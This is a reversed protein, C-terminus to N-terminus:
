VISRRAVASRAASIGFKAWVASYIALDFFPNKGAYFKRYFRAMGRHFSFNHRLGRHGRRVTTGGKVHIVTTRGDYWVKWGAQKFRYCWDLDEMYIWYGEDFLGVGNMADRRVLMFAGNVADVEGEEHEALDPVRYQAMRGGAEARRGVGMFHALAGLPTPFSRKAAHDFSGDRRILRCGIVGIDRREELTSVLQDLSSEIFETDPNLILAYSARGARLGVNNAVCFGANWGLEHLQVGPFRAKVMGITCDRTANDVVHIVTPGLTLPFRELSELCTELHQRDNGSVVIVIDLLPEAGRM